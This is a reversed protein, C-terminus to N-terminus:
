VMSITSGGQEVDVDACLGQLRPDSPGQGLVEREAENKRLNQPLTGDRKEDYYGINLALLRPPDIFLLNPMWHLWEAATEPRTFVAGAGFGDRLGVAFDDVAEFARIEDNGRRSLIETALRTSGTYFM